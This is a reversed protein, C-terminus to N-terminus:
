RRSRFVRHRGNGIITFFLTAGPTITCSIAPFPLACFITPSPLVGADKRLFNASACGSAVSHSHLLRSCVAAICLHIPSLCAQAVRCGANGHSAYCRYILIVITICTESHDHSRAPRLPSTTSIDSRMSRCFKPVTFRGSLCHFM